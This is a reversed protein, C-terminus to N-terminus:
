RRMPSGHLTVIRALVTAPYLQGIVAEFNALSRAMPHVPAIDGYGTSTLTVYSFYMFSGPAGGGAPGAFADPFFLVVLEYAGTFMTAIAMYLVIAGLIRHYTVQGAAFVAHGVVVILTAMLLLASGVRLSAAALLSSDQIPLLAFALNPAFAVLAALVAVLHRSLVIVAAVMLLWLSINLANSTLINAARMPAYVFTVLALFFALATLIPDRAQDRWPARAAVRPTPVSRRTLGLSM